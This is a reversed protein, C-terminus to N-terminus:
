QWSEKLVRLWNRYTIKELADGQYGKEHLAKVLNQFLSANGVPAPMQAGDM